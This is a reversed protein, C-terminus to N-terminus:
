CARRQYRECDQYLLIPSHHLLARIRYRVPREVGRCHLFKSAAQATTHQLRAVIVVLTRSSNLVAQDVTMGRQDDPARACHVDHLRHVKCAISAQQQRDTAAAMVDGTVRHVVAAGHDIERCHAAHVDIGGGAGHARSATGGPAIDVPFGL